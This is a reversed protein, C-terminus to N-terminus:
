VVMNNTLLISENWFVDMGVGCLFYSTLGEVGKPTRICKSNDSVIKGGGGGRRRVASIEEM